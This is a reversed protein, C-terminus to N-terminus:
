ELSLVGAKGCDDSYRKLTKPSTKIFPLRTLDEGYKDRLCLFGILSFPMTAGYLEFLKEVSLNEATLLSDFHLLKMTRQIVKESADFKSQKKLM